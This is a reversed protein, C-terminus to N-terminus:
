HNRPLILAFKCFADPKIIMGIDSIMELALIKLEFTGLGFTSRINTKFTCDCKLKILILLFMIYM